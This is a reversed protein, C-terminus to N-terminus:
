KPTFKACKSCLADLSPPFVLYLVGDFKSFEELAQKMIEDDKHECTPHGLFKCEALIFSNCASCLKNAAEIENVSVFMNRMAPETLNPCQTTGGLKCALYEQKM